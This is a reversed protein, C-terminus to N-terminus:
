KRSVCSGHVLVPLERGARLRGRGGRSHAHLRSSHGRLRGTCNTDRPARLFRRGLAAGEHHSQAQIDQLMETDVEVAVDGCNEGFHDRIGPVRIGPPNSDLHVLPPIADHDLIVSAAHRPVLDDVAKQQHAVLPPGPLRSRGGPLTPSRHAALADALQRQEGDRVLDDDLRAAVARSGGQPHAEIVDLGGDFVVLTFVLRLFQRFRIEVAFM